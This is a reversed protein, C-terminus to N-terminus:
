MEFLFSGIRRSGRGVAAEVEVLFCGIEVGEWDVLFTYFRQAAIGLAEAELHSSEAANPSHAVGVGASQQSNNRGVVGVVVVVVAEVVVSSSAV